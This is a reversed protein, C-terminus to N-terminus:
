IYFKVGCKIRVTKKGIFYQKKAPRLNDQRKLLLTQIAERQLKVMMTKLYDLGAHTVTCWPPVHSSNSYPLHKTLKQIRDM